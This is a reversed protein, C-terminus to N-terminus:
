MVMRNVPSFEGDSTVEHLYRQLFKSLNRAAGSSHLAFEVFPIFHLPSKVMELVMASWMLQGNSDVTRNFDIPLNKDASDSIARVAVAPVGARRAENMVQLSEMDVADAVESLRLKESASNVVSDATYFCDVVTAGCRASADVLFADSHMTTPYAQGEVARAVLITGTSHEENLAGTLGSAICLDVPKALLQRLESKLRRTGMGTLLAYIENHGHSTRYIPAGAGAIRSFSMRRRLPAFEAPLAFTIVVKM